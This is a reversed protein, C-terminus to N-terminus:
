RSIAGVGLTDSYDPYTVGGVTSGSDRYGTDDRGTSGGSGSGWTGGTGTDTSGGSGYGTGPNVSPESQYSPNQYDPNQYGPNTDQYNPNPNSSSPNTDRNFGPDTAGGTAGGTGTDGPLSEITGQYGMGGAGSDMGGDASSFRVSGGITLGIFAATALTRLLVKRANRM